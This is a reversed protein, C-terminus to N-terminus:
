WSTAAFWPLSQCRSSATSKRTLPRGAARPARMAL